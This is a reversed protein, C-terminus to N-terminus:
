GLEALLTPEARDLAARVAGLTVVREGLTSASVAPPGVGTGALGDLVARIPPLIVTEAAPANGGIVFLEPSILTTIVVIVRCVRALATELDRRAGVRGSQAAALVKDVDPVYVGHLPALDALLARVPESGVARRDILDQITRHVVSTVLQDIAESPDPNRLLGLFTIEGTGGRKGRVLEGGIVIGAGVREGALLFVVDDHGPGAGRWCEGLAALNADNGVAVACGFTREFEAALALGSWDAISSCYTVTGMDSDVIGPTSVGVARLSDKVLGADKLVGAAAQRAARLRQARGLEPTLRRERGAVITGLLDAVVVELRHAGIDIGLVHGSEARFRLRRPPRGRGRAGEAEAAVDPAVLGIRTLDDVVADLTARSLGARQALDAVNSPGGFRLLDLTRAANIRRLLPPTASVPRPM